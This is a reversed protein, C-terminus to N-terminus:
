PLRACWTHARYPLHDDTALTNVHIARKHVEVTGPNANAHTNVDAQVTTSM